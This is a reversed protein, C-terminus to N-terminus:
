PVKVTKRAVTQKETSTCPFDWPVEVVELYGEVVEVSAEVKELYVEVAEMSAEGIELSGEAVEMSSSDGDFNHLIGHCYGSAETSTSSAKTPIVFTTDAHIYPRGVRDEASDAVTKTRSLGHFKGSPLKGRYNLPLLDQM